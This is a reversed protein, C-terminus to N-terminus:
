ARSDKSGIGKGQCALETFFTKDRFKKTLFKDLPKPVNQNQSGIENQVSVNLNEGAGVGIREFDEPRRIAGTSDEKDKM